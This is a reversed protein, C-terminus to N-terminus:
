RGMLTQMLAMSVKQSRGDPDLDPNWTSVSIAAVQGTAALHRFVTDLGAATPGGEAPYNQAPSEALAVVDMDVHVYLPREPLARALLDDPNTLHTVESHALAAAEPPDLDRGDTLVIRNEPLPALGVARVLTLDGRGAMMALPMGGLFGSPTTDMTNFDGHADFWILAPDIGARQLGALVGIATCCDGAISVPRRGSGLAREVRGAIAQHVASMRALRGAEPLRPRNLTWDREVLAALGPLPQDLFLPTVFVEDIMDM